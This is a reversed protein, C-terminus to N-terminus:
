LGDYSSRVWNPSKEWPKEDKTIQIM